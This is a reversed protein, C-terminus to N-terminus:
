IVRFLWSKRRMAWRCWKEYSGGGIFCVWSEAWSRLYNANWLGTGNCGCDAAFEHLLVQHNMGPFIDVFRVLSVHHKPTWIRYEKELRPRNVWTGHLDKPTNIWCMFICSTCLGLFYGDWFNSISIFCCLKHISISKRHHVKRCANVQCFEPLFQDSFCM